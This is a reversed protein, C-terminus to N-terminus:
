GRYLSHHIAHELRQGVSPTGRSDSDCLLEKVLPELRSWVDPCKEVYYACLNHCRMITEPDNRGTLIAIPISRCSEDSALMECVSLGNGAPMEVDLCVMDPQGAKILSLASFADHACIVILGMRQCRLALAQVLDRDDDAIVISKVSVSSRETLSPLFAPTARNRLGLLTCLEAPTHNQPTVDAAPNRKATAVNGIFNSPTLAAAAWAAKPQGFRV